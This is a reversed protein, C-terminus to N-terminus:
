LYRKIVALTEAGSKDRLEHAPINLHALARYEALRESLLSPYCRRVAADADEGEAHSFRGCWAVPKPEAFFQEVMKGVSEETVDLHVVLCNARLTDLTEPALHAVSGTTDFVLNAGGSDMASRRTFENELELYKAEREPYTDSTPYGIWSSVESIDALGLAKQIEEDVHYWRFGLDDRLVRSRYSKGGNSMGIFSLRLTGAALHADFEEPKLMELEEAM